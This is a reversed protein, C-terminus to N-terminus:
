PDNTLFTLSSKSWLPRERCVSPLRNPWSRFSCSCEIWHAPDQEKEYNGPTSREATAAGLRLLDCGSIRQRRRLHCQHGEAGSSERPLAEAVVSDNNVIWGGACPDGVVVSYKIEM